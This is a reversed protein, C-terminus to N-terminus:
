VAAAVIDVHALRLALFAAGKDGHCGDRCDGNDSRECERYRSAEAPAVFNGVHNALGLFGSNLGNFFGAVGHAGDRFVVVGFGYRAAYALLVRFGVAVEFLAAFDIDDNRLAHLLAGNGVKRAHRRLLGFLRQFVCAQFGLIGAVLCRVGVFVGHAPLVRCCALFDVFARRDLIPNGRAGFVRRHRIYDSGVLCACFGLQFASPERYLDFRAVVAIFVAFADDHRLAGVAALKFLAAGHGDGHRLALVGLLAFDGNRRDRAHALAFRNVRQEGVVEGIRKVRCGGTRSGRSRNGLM